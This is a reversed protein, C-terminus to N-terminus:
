SRRGANDPPCDPEHKGVLVLAGTSPALKVTAACACFNERLHDITSQSVAGRSSAIMHMADLVSIKEEESREMAALRCQVLRKGYGQKVRKIIGADLPQLCSTCNPPLFAVKINRLSTTDPPHCPANDM